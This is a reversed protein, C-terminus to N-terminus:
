LRKNRLRTSMINTPEDIWIRKVLGSLEKRLTRQRAEPLPRPPPSAAEPTFFEEEEREMSPRETRAPSAWGAAGDEDPQQQDDIEEQPQQQQRPPVRQQHQHHHLHRIVQTVVTPIDLSLLYRGGKKRLEETHENILVQASEELVYEVAAVVTSTDAEAPIDEDPIDTVKPRMEQLSINAEKKRKRDRRVRYVGPRVAHLVLAEEWQQALTPNPVNINHRRVWVADGNTPKWERPRKEAREQQRLQNQQQLRLM